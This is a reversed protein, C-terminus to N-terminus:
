EGLTRSAELRTIKPEAPSLAKLLVTLLDPYQKFPEMVFGTETAIAGLSKIAALKGGQHETRLQAIAIPVLQDVYPKMHGGAAKALEGIAGLATAALSPPCPKTPDLATPDPSLIVILAHVVPRVYPSILQGLASAIQGLLACSDEKARRSAGRSTIDTLIRKIAKQLTNMVPSPNLEVLRGLLSVCAKRVEISPDNVLM